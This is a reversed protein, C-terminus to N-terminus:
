IIIIIVKQNIDEKKEIEIKERKKELMQIIKNINNNPEIENYNLECQLIIDEFNYYKKYNNIWQKNILYYNEFNNDKIEKEDILENVIKQEDYYNALNDCINNPVDVEEMNNNKNDFNNNNINDYNIVNNNINNTNNNINNVNNNLNNNDKNKINSINNNIFNNNSNFSNANSNINIINKNLNNDNNNINNANNNINNNNDKVYNNINNTNLSNIRYFNDEKIIKMMQQKDKFFLYLETDIKFLFINSEKSINININRCFQQNVFM